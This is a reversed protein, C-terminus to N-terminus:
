KQPLTGSTLFNDAQQYDLVPAAPNSGYDPLTKTLDQTLLKSVDANSMNPFMQHLRAEAASVRPAAFSTGWEHVDNPDQSTGVSGWAYINIGSTPSNYDAVNEVWNGNQLNYSTAGVTTTESNSLPNVYFDTPVTPTAGGSDQQMESMLVGDNGAAVVVSVKSAELGDVAQDYQAKEAKEGPNADAAQSVFDILKQNFQAREAPDASNIKDANLGFALSLNDVLQVAQQRVDPPTTPDWAKMVEDYLNDTLRAKGGSQSLNVASHNAGSQKLEGLQEATPKLLCLQMNDVYSTLDARVQDASQGANALAAQAALANQLEPGGPLTRPILPGKFGEQDAAFAVVDGHPDTGDFFDELILSGSQNPKKQDPVVVPYLPAQPTKDAVVDM